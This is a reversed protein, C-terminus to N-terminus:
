FKLEQARRLTQFSKLRPDDAPLRLTPVESANGNTFDTGVPQLRQISPMGVANRFTNVWSDEDVQEFDAPNFVKGPEFSEARGFTTNELGKSLWDSIFSGKGMDAQLSQMDNATRERLPTNSEPDVAAAIQQDTIARTAEEVSVKNNAAYDMVLKQTAADQEGRIKAKHTDGQMLVNAAKVKNDLLIGELEAAEKASNRGALAVNMDIEGKRELLGVNNGFDQRGAAQQRNGESNQQFTLNEQRMNGQNNDIEVNDYAKIQDAYMGMAAARASPSGKMSSGAIEMRRILEDRPVGGAISVSRARPAAERAVTGDGGNEYRNVRPQSTPPAGVPMDGIGGVALGEDFGARNFSNGVPRGGRRNVKPLVPEKARLMENQVAPPVAGHGVYGLQSGYTDKQEWAM